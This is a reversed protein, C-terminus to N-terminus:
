GNSAEGENSEEGEHPPIVDGPNPASDADSWEKEFASWDRMELM